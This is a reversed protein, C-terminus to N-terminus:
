KIRTTCGIAVSVKGTSSSAVLSCTQECLSISSATQDAYYWGGGAAACQSTDPVQFLPVLPTGDGPDYDVNVKSPDYDTSTPDPVDFQCPLAAGRIEQM